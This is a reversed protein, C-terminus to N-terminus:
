PLTPRRRRLLAFGIFATLGATAIALAMPTATGDSLHGVTIGYLASGTMQMVGLVAAALGAMHPYPGVAGAVASPNSLGLGLSFFFMPAIVAAVGSVGGWALGAMVLGAAAGLGTGTLILRDGAIRGALRATIFSGTMIGVAVAAFCFGYVAPSVGLAGILVFSSGSIFAFQGSFMFTVVAVYGLYAPDGLVTAVNEVFRAPQLATADPEVNTEPTVAVATLFFMAGFGALVYFVSRWGFTAHLLGGIVPALIPNLAQATGMLGLVRAAEARPYVDRVIARAIVQGSGAGFAQVIRALILTRIGPARACVLGAAAYLALGSILTRRRGFRDSLPGWVLQAPALGALFLTVTLQATAATTGYARALAPLSPLFMDISLAGLGVVATLLVAVRGLRAPRPPANM